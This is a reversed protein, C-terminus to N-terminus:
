PRTQRVVSVKIYLSQKEEKRAKIFEHLDLLQTIKKQEWEDMELTSKTQNLKSPKKTLM